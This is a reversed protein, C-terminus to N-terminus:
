AEKGQGPQLQATSKYADFLTVSVFRRGTLEQGELRIAGALIADIDNAALTRQVKGFATTDPAQEATYLKDIAMAIALRACVLPVPDPYDVLSVYTPSAALFSNKLPPDIEIQNLRGADEFISKVVLLESTTGNSLRVLAGPYFASGDVLRIMNQGAAADAQLLTEFMKIRRLPCVYIPRLRGNIQQASMSIYTQAAAPSFTDPKAASLDAPDGLHNGITITKPLLRSLQEINCYM